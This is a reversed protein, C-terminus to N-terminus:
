QPPGDVWKGNAKHKLLAEMARRRANNVQVQCKDTGAGDKAQLHCAQVAFVLDDTASAADRERDDEAMRKLNEKATRLDQMQAAYHADDGSLDVASASDIVTEAATVFTNRLPALSNPLSRPAEQGALTLLAISALVLTTM